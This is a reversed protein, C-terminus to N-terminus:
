RTKWASAFDEDTGKRVLSVLLPILALMLLWHLHRLWPAAENSKLPPLASIPTPPKVPGRHYTPAIPARAPEPQPEAPGEAPSPDAAREDGLLLAAAADEVPPEPM